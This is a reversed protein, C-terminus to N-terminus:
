LSAKAAIKSEVKILWKLYVRAKRLDDLGNKHKYRWTYKIINGKCYAAFGEDGLSSHIAEICEPGNKTKYHKPHKVKNSM